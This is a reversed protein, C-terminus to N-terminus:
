IVIELINGGSVLPFLAEVGNVIKESTSVFLKKIGVSREIMETFKVHYPIIKWNNFGAV